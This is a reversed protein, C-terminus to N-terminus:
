RGAQRAKKWRGNVAGRDGNAVPRFPRRGEGAGHDLYAPRERNDAVEIRVTKGNVAFHTFARLVQDTFRSDAELFSFNRALEIRGIAIRAGAAGQNIIGILREPLIGDSRGVNIFFRTYQEAGAQRGGREASGGSREQGRPQMHRGRERDREKWAVKEKKEPMANLDPADKYYDIFRTFEVAVLRRILEERDLGALKERVMPLFSEISGDVEMATINEVQHLLQRECVERGTPVTCREFTKGIRREIDRIRYQERQHIIAVSVGARGARGTRGSRHTYNATEDPLNYNIVHTLDSVDVGRAAVDTAVLLRVIRRRFRAMVQDRQAQSLDGHLPEAGYGDEMLQDAVDQTEQRTRCFVIGYIDPNADVIRKLAPYRNRAPVMYYLHRVNDAGSNRRGVIVEEPDRMYRGAISKVEASMTASFLLTNKEAPTMALIANIEELFGMNLMEDAEDLVAIRIATIDAEGRKILDNLRGPTAVIIQVGRRLALIQRDISAGGYVALVSVGALFRSYEELDKAVQVCLERTPCLVMAQISRRGPDISQIVPIGFAATKGTGTQALSILDRRGALLMPIVKEQVPTPEVFGLAELGKVIEPKM